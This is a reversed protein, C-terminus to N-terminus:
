KKGVLLEVFYSRRSVSKKQLIELKRKNFMGEFRKSSLYSNYIINVEQFAKNNTLWCFFILQVKQFFNKYTEEVVIIKSRSVRHLEEFLGDPNEIHHLTYTCVVVDFEAKPFPIVNGDYVVVDSPNLSDPNVVVDLNFIEKNFLKVFYSSYGLGYGVKLIKGSLIEEKYKKFWFYDDNYIYEQEKTKFKIPELVYLYAKWGDNEEEKFDKIYLKNEILLTNLLGLDGTNSFGLIIKGEEKM